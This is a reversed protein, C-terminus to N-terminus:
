RGLSLDHKDRAAQSYRQQYRVDILEAVIAIALEAPTKAGFKLGIPRKICDWDAETAGAAIVLDHVTSNKGACGMMGAYHVNNQIAWLCGQPDFMHGRTLVCVYDDASCTMNALENFDGGHLEILEAEPFRERNIYAPDYDVVTVEFGVHKAQRALEVAVDSAGLLWVRVAGFLPTSAWTLGEFQENHMSPGRTVDKMQFVDRPSPERSSVIEKADNCFFLMSRGDASGTDGYKKTVENDTNSVAEAADYVVKFGLWALDGEDIACMARELTPVDATTLGSAIEALADPSLHENGATAKESFAPFDKVALTPTIGANLDDIIQQLTQKNM